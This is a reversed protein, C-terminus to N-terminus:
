NSLCFYHRLISLREVVFLTAQSLRRRFLRRIACLRVIEQKPDHYHNRADWAAPTETEARVTSIPPYVAHRRDVVAATIAMGRRTLRGERHRLHLEQATCRGVRLPAVASALLWTYCIASTFCVGPRATVRMDTLCGTRPRRQLSLAPASPRLGLSLSLDLELALNEEPM